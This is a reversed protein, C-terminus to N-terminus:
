EKGSYLILSSYNNIGYGITYKLVDNIEHQYDEESISSIRNLKSELQQANEFVDDCGPMLDFSGDSYRLCVVGRMLAEYYANTNVAIAWDYKEQCLCSEITENSPIMKMRHTEAFSSYYEVAAPHPKITIEYKDTYKSLLCLLKMNLDYFYHLALLVICRKLETKKKYKILQNQKPYGGVYLRKKDIGYSLFEDITFQGWTLLNKTELNEYNMIAPETGKHIIRSAGHTLSYTPIGAMNFHQTLLNELGNVDSFCLFKKINSYRQSRLIDISNCLYITELLLAIKNTIRINRMRMVSPIGKQIVFLVNKLNFYLCRSSNVLYNRSVSSGLISLVYEYTNKHDIRKSNSTGFVSLIEHSQSDYQIDKFDHAFFIKALNQFKFPLKSNAYNWLYVALVRNLAYGKYILNYRNKVDLYKEIDNM